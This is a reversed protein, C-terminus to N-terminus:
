EEAPTFDPIYEQLQGILEDARSSDGSQRYWEATQWMREGWEDPLIIMSMQPVVEMVMAPRRFVLQDYMLKGFTGPGYIGQQIFHQITEEGIHSAEAVDGEIAALEAEYWRLSLKEEEKVAFVLKAMGIAKQAEEKRGSELYFPIVELYSTVLYPNMALNEQAESLTLTDKEEDMKLHDHFGQRFPTERWFYADLWSPQLQIATQYAEAALDEKGMLEYTSGRNLQYLACDPAAEVAKELLAGSKPYDGKTRYLVGLNAYNLGWYPDLSIAEEFSTIASQVTHIDEGEALKSEALGSQQYAIALDPDRIIAEEFHKRAENWDGSNGAIVGDNLPKEAWLNLVGALILGAGLLWSITVRRTKAEKNNGFGIGLVVALVWAVTPITHHVSDAVGHVLFAVLAGMAGMVAARELGISRRFRRFLGIVLCVIMVVFATLGVVGSGSLLDLYISHSYLYLPSPPTSQQQLYFSIYTYPGSGIVPSAIFAQWAPNWLFSRSDGLTGHTPLKSQEIFIWAFALLASFICVILLITVIRHKRLWTFVAKRKEPFAAASIFILSGLGAVSGLWGGRSSTLYLLGLASFIWLGLLIKGTKSETFLFSAVAVMLLLNLFVALFNPAPLRYSIEPIVKGTLAFWQQYWTIAERWTFVMVIGGVVLLAKIWLDVDWGRSVLDSSILFLFIAAGLLWVETFSRRPDISFWASAALVCLFVLIPIEQKIPVKQGFIIWLVEFLFFISITITFITSNVLGNHTSAFLYFYSLLLILASERLLYRWNMVKISYKM